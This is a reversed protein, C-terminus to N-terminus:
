AAGPEARRRTRAWLGLLAQGTAAGSVDILSDRLSATRGPVFGQHLEDTLAYFAAFAVAALAAGPSWRRESRMAEYLLLGLILYEAFHAAKRVARHMAVLEAPAAGPFLWALLPLLVSATREGTFWETSFLSILAAWSVVALWRAIRERSSL